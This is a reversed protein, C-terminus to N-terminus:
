APARVAEVVSSPTGAHTSTWQWGAAALLERLEFETRERGGGFLMLMTMDSMTALTADPFTEPLLTEIVRLSAHPPAAHAVTSLIRLATDDDWDHLIRALVYCDGTPVCERFDSAVFACRDAVGASQMRTRAAELVSPLEVLTARLGPQGLLLAEVLQGNGGGVDVVTGESPWALDDAWQRVLLHGQDVMKQDFAASAAADRDLFSWFDAGHV